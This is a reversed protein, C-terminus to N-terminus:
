KGLLKTLAKLEASAAAIAFEEVKRYHQLLKHGTPTVTTGGGKLGGASTDVVPGVLSRNMEDVLLWARRYSMGMQRAAASISGTDLIAELLAVKGPGIAINKGKTIRLRFQAEIKM